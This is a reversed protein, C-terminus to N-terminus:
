RREAQWSLWEIRVTERADTRARGYNKEGVDTEIRNRRNGLLGSIRPAIQRNPDYRRQYDAGEEVCHNGAYEGAQDGIGIQFGFESSLLGLRERHGQLVDALLKVSIESPCDSYHSESRHDRVRRNQQHKLETLWPDKERHGTVAQQGLDEVSDMRSVPSVCRVMNVLTNTAEAGNGADVLHDVESVNPREREYQHTRPYDDQSDFVRRSVTWETHRATQRNM